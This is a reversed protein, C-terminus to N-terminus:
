LKIIDFIFVTNLIINLVCSILLLKDCTSNTFSRIILFLDIIWLILATIYLVLM